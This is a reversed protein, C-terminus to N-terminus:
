MKETQVVIHEERYSDGINWCSGRCSFLFVSGFELHGLPDANTLSILRLRPIM